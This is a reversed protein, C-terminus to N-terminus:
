VSHILREGEAGVCIGYYTGESLEASVGNSPLCHHALSAHLCKQSTCDQVLTACMHGLGVECPAPM